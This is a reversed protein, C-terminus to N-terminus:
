GSGIIAAVNWVGALMAILILMMSASVSYEIWRAPNRGRRLNQEYWGRGPPLATLVHDAGALFLFFAVTPGIPLEFLVQAEPIGTVQIVLCRLQRSVRSHSPKEVDSDGMAVVVDDLIM